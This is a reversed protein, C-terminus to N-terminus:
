KSVGGRNHGALEKAEKKEQYWRIIGANQIWTNIMDVILGIVLITMIQSITQSQSFILAVSVAVLTTINMTMGTKMASIIRQYVTGEKNKLVRTSLLIDTDVSYGILMLFAAIGATSIKIGLLNVVALTVVIDSFAALMVALSPIPVRFQIFVVIGMLLFAIILAKIIQGFFNEGLMSGSSRINQSLEEVTLESDFAIVSEKFLELEDNDVIDTEIEIAIIEALQKKTRIVFEHDPHQVLLHDELSSIDIEGLNTMDKTIIISTGGKLSIGKHLFEGTQAFQLGIIVMAILLMAFPIILLQKYYKNYFGKKEKIPIESTESVKKIDQKTLDVSKVSSKKGFRKKLRKNHNTAMYLGTLHPTKIFIDRLLKYFLNIIDFIVLYFSM